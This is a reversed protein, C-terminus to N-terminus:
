RVDWFPRAAEMMADGRSTGIDALMRTDMEALLRRTQRARLMTAASTWVRSLSFPARSPAFSAAHISRTAM